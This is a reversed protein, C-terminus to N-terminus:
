EFLGDVCDLITVEEESVQLDLIVDDNYCVVVNETYYPYSVSDTYGNSYIELDEYGKLKDILKIKDVLEIEGINMLMVCLQDFSFVKNM